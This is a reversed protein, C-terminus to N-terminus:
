QRSSLANDFADSDSILPDVTKEIEILENLVKIQKEDSLPRQTMYSYLDAMKSPDTELLKGFEAMRSGNFYEPNKGAYVIFDGMPFQPFEEIVVGALLEFGKKVKEDESIKKSREPDTEFNEVARVYEAYSDYNEPLIGKDEAQLAKDGLDEVPRESKVLGLAKAIGMLASALTKLGQIAVGIISLNKVVAVAATVIAGIAGVLLSM